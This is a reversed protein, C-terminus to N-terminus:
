RAADPRARQQADPPQGYAEVRSSVTSQLEASRGNRDNLWEYEHAGLRCDPRRADRHFRAREPLLRHRRLPSARARRRDRASAYLAPGEALPCTRDFAKM